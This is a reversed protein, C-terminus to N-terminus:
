YFPSQAHSLAAMYVLNLIHLRMRPAALFAQLGAIPPHMKPEAHGAPVDATAIGGLIFVGGFMKVLGLM